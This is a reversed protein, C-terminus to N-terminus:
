SIEQRGGGQRLKKSHKRVITEFSGLVQIFMVMLFVM